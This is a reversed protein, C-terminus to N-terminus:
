STIIAKVRIRLLIYGLNINYKLRKISVVKSAKFFVLITSNIRITFVRM